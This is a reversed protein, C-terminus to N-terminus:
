PSQGSFGARIRGGFGARMLWSLSGNTDPADDNLGARIVGVPVKGLYNSVDAANFEPGSGARFWGRPPTRARLSLGAGLSM